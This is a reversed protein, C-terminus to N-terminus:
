NVMKRSPVLVRPAGQPAVAVIEVQFMEAPLQVTTEVVETVAYSVSFNTFAQGDKPIVVPTTPGEGSAALAVSAFSCHGDPDITFEFDIPGEPLAENHVAKSVFTVASGSPGVTVALEWLTDTPNGFVTPMWVTMLDHNDNYLQLLLEQLFAQGTPVNPPTPLTLSVKVRLTDVTPHYGFDLFSGSTTNSGGFKYEALTAPSTPPVPSPSVSFLTSALASQAGSLLWSEPLSSMTAWAAGAPEAPVHSVLPVGATGAFRDSFLMVESVSPVVTISPTPTPTPTPPVVPRRSPTPSLVKNQAVLPLGVSLSIALGVVLLVTVVLVYSLM